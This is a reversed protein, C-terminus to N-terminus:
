YGLLEHAKKNAADEAAMRDEWSVLDHHNLLIHALEHALIERPTHPFTPRPHRFATNHMFINKDVKFATDTNVVGNALKVAEWSKKNCFLTESVDSPFPLSEVAELFAKRDKASCSPTFSQANAPAALVLLLSATLIYKM